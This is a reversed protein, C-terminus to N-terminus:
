PVEYVEYGTVVSINKWTKRWTPDALFQAREIPGWFIHTVGLEKALHGSDGVGTMLEVLKAKAQTADIGHAWLHGEYGMARMAGLYILPHDHTPASAFVARHSIGQIAGATNDVDSLHVLTLAPAISVLSPYIQSFGSYFLVFVLWGRLGLDLARHPKFNNAASAFKRTFRDLIPDLSRHALSLFGLYPWLLIKINDWDWPALIVFFFIGFVALYILLEIRLWRSTAKKCAVFILIALLLLFPGFNLNLFELVPKSKIMWGDPAFHIVGARRFFDTSYLIFGLALIVAGALSIRARSLILRLGDPHFIFYGGIILSICFFAHLHFFPLTGWLWALVLAKKRLTKSDTFDPNFQMLLLLGIPLAYLMGRQTVFVTMFLNKWALLPEYNMWAQGAFIQWGAWGGSLFFGGMAWISGWRRLLVLSAISAFIGVVFLHSGTPVGLCEWLSNYLDIGVPYRMWDGSFIPNAYPVPLGNALARIYNVHLSIDGYNSPNLTRLDGQSNFILFAFHRFCAWLIFVALAKELIGNAGDSWKMLQASDDRFSRSAFSALPVSLLLSLTAVWTNMGGAIWSFGLALFTSFSIHLLGWFIM